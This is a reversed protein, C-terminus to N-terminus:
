SAHEELVDEPVPVPVNVGRGTKLVELHLRARDKRAAELAGSALHRESREREVAASLTKARADASSREKIMDHALGDYRSNLVEVQEELRQVDALRAESTEALRDSRDVAAARAVEVSALEKRTVTLDSALSAIQDEAQKLRLKLEGNERDANRDRAISEQLQRGLEANDEELRTTRAQSTAMRLEALEVQSRMKEAQEEILRGLREAEASSSQATVELGRVRVKDAALQAELDAVARSARSLEGMITEVRRELVGREVDLLGRAQVATAAQAEAQQRRVETEDVKVRLRGNDDELRQAHAIAKDGSNKFELSEARVAALSTTLRSVEAERASATLEIQLKAARLEVLADELSGLRRQLEAERQRLADLEQSTQDYLATLAVLESRDSRRAEFESTLTSRARALTEEVSRVCSLARSTEELASEISEHSEGISRTGELMKQSTDRARDQDLISLLKELKKTSGDRVAGTIQLLNVVM